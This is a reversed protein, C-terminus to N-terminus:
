SEFAGRSVTRSYEMRTQEPPREGASLQPFLFTYLKEGARSLTDLFLFVGDRVPEFGM